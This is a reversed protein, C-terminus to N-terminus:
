EPYAFVVAPVRVSHINIPFFVPVDVYRPNPIPPKNVLQINIPFSIVVDTFEVIVFQITILVLGYLKVVACLLVVYISPPVPPTKMVDPNVM